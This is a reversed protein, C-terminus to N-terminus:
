VIQKLLDVGHTDWQDRYIALVHVDWLRGHFYTHDPLVAETRVMAAHEGGFGLNAVDTETAHFYVKRTRWMSFAFNATLANADMRVEDSQGAVLHTEALIHGAPTLESLSSFGVVDDTDRQQILFGASMGRGFAAVFTDILPLNGRGLRFLIDYVRPADQDSATRLAIRRSETYPFLM